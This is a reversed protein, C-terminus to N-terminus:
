VPDVIRRHSSGADGVSGRTTSLPLRKIQHRIDYFEKSLEDFVADGKSSRKSSLL